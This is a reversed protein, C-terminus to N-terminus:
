WYCVHIIIQGVNWACFIAFTQTSLEQWLSFGSCHNKCLTFCSETQECPHAEPEVSVKLKLKHFLWCILVIEPRTVHSPLTWVLKRAPMKRIYNAYRWCSQRLGCAKWGIRLLWGLFHFITYRCVMWLLVAWTHMFQCRDIALQLIHLYQFWDVQVHIVIIVGPLQWTHQFINVM